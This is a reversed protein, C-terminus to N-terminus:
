LLVLGKVFELGNINFEDDPSICYFINSLTFNVDTPVELEEYDADEVTSDMINASRYSSLNAYM